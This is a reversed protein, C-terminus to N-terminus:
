ATLPDNDPDSFHGALNITFPTDEDTTQDPIPNSANFVPADNVNQVILTYAQTANLLGDTVIIGITHQGVDANTPTWSILGTGNDITMGAPAQTLLYTLLVSDIDTADIDYTYLLDQTATTIPVSTIIPADNVPNVTVTVNNSDATLGAPDHTLPDNDPDSFHGALNITFPTDEDTTQDPIPNSANFVPADNVNQVTITYGQTDTLFGDSVVIEVQHQGVDTNAPTWTIIGTLSDIAMGAPQQTLTYVLVANDVDTADVDYTYLLDQTAITIPVSIIIPADNVPTVTIQVTNSDTSLQGDSATFVVSSDGFFDPNPTFTASSGAITITINEAATHTFTLPDNEPDSFFNSLNQTITTDESLIIPPILTARPADNVPTIIIAITEVLTNEPDNIQLSCEGTGSFDLPPTVTLLSGNLSCTANEEGTVTYTIPDNEVDSTYDDLDVAVPTDEQTTITTLNFIPADNVATVNYVVVNSPTFGGRTDNAFYTVTFTGFFDQAPTVSVSSGIITITASATDTSTYVLVPDDVDIFHNNLDLLSTTDEDMVQDPIPQVLVPPDNIENVHIPVTAQVSDAGDIISISCAANGFYDQAPSLLILEGVISCDVQSINEQVIGYIFSSSDPDIIDQTINFSEPTDEDIEYRATRNYIPPDNVNIITLTFSDSDNLEGDSVTIIISHVGVDADDPTFSIIGAEQDIAFFPSDDSFTLVPSDIDSANVDYLYAQDEFITQDPIDQMIPADNVPTVTIIIVEPPSTTEPDSVTITCSGEGNFDDGPDISLIDGAITCNVGPTQQTVNFILSDNDPDQAHDTLNITTNTDEPLTVNDLTLIPQDNIHVSASHNASGEVGALTICSVGWIFNINDPIDQRTFSGETSNIGLLLITQEKMFTGTISTYLSCNSLGASATANFTFTEAPLPIIAGDPPSILTVKPPNMDLNNSKGQTCARKIWDDKDVGTDKGNPFRAECEDELGTANGFPANDSINGDFWTGYTVQDVVFGTDSVLQMQGSTAAQAGVPNQIIIYGEPAISGSLTETGPSPDILEVKWGEISIPFSNNNYIEIWQDDANIISDNDWDQQPDVVFENLVIKPTLTLTFSKSVVSHADTVSVTIQWTGSEQPQSQYTFTDNSVSFRADSISFTLPDNDADFASAHITVLSGAPQTINPLPQLIPVDDVPTVIVQFFNSTASLTGDSATIRVAESGSFDQDASLTATNGAFIFHVHVNGQVTYALIPNDIDSFYPTLDLNKTTDEPFTQDPINQNLIPGDNVPTITINLLGDAFAMGDSARITCGAPGNYEPAPTITLSSGAAQCAAKAIDQAIVSFTIPDHEVDFTYLLLDITKPTDEPTTVAPLSITPADNVPTVSLGVLNSQVQGGHNDNALFRVTRDGFFNLGPAFTVISGTITVTINQPMAGVVSYVLPDQDQDSFYNSLNISRLTDEPWTQNPISQNLTPIDNVNQITLQFIGTTQNAGDACSVAVTHIGVDSNTPTFSIQGTAPNITFLPSADSYTIPQQEKDDCHISYTFLTDETATKAALPPSFFPVDNVPLVTITFNQSTANKHDSVTVRGQQVGFYDAAPFVDLFPANVAFSLNTVPQFSWTMNAEVDDVDNVYPLLNRNRIPIDEELTLDPFTLIPPDNVCNQDINDDLETANPHITANNDNCDVDERFGDGDKDDGFVAYGICNRILIESAPTWFDSDQIGYFCARANEKKGGILTSGKPFHSVFADFPGFNNVAVSIDIVESSPRNLRYIYFGQINIGYSDKAATYVDFTDFLNLGTTISNNKEVRGRLAQSSTVVSISDAYGWVPADYRNTLILNFDNAPIQDHNPFNESGVFIAEYQSFDTSPVASYIIPVVSLGQDEFAQVINPDIRSFQVYLYAIQGPAAAAMLPLMISALLLILLIHKKM